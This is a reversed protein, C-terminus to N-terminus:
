IETQMFLIRSLGGSTITPWTFNMIGSLSAENEGSYNILGVSLLKDNLDNIAASFESINGSTTPTILPMDWTITAM